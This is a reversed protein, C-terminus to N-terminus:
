LSEINEQAKKGKQEPLGTEQGEESEEGSLEPDIQESGHATVFPKFSFIASIGGASRAVPLLKWLFWLAFAATVFLAAAVTVFITQFRSSSDKAVVVTWIKILEPSNGQGVKSDAQSTADSFRGKDAIVTVNDFSLGQVSSAVLRRIKTVLQNNPDDLVGQHKIFVSATVAGKKQQPNLPDEEPFSLQVDADLIGDIKRITSAVQEALGAQFRIKEQMESPVLGGANFLQLLNQPRRRPLGNSNLVSMAETSKSSDVVINFMPPGGGGGPSDSKAQVKYADIGKSSLFVVIENAEREELGNIITKQSSCGSISFALLFLLFLKRTKELFRRTVHWFSYGDTM